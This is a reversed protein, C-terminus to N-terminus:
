VYMIKYFIIDNTMMYGLLGYMYIYLCGVSM